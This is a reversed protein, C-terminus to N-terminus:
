RWEIQDGPLLPLRLAGPDGRKMSVPVLRDGSLRKVSLARPHDGVVQSLRSSWVVSETKGNVQIEMEVSVSCAEPFVTCNTSSPGCVTEPHELKTSLQDLESKTNAGLLVSGRSDTARNFVIEYYLRYLRTQRMAPSILDQVPADGDPRGPMSQVSLLKLGDSLVEYRAVETGLYGSLGRRSAGKEYYANEIRLDMLTRLDIWGRGAVFGNYARLVDAFPTQQSDPFRLLYSPSQPIVQFHASTRLACSALLMQIVALVVCYPARLHKSLSIWNPVAPHM